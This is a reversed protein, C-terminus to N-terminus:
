KSCFHLIEALVVMTFAFKQCHLVSTPTHYSACIGTSIDFYQNVLYSSTEQCILFKGLHYSDLACHWIMCSSVLSRQSSGLCTAQSSELLVSYFLLAVCCSWYVTALFYERFFPM